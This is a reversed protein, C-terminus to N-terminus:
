QFQTPNIFGIPILQHELLYNQSRRQNREDNNQVKWDKFRICMKNFKYKFMKSKWVIMFSIIKKIEFELKVHNTSPFFSEKAYSIKSYTNKFEMIIKYNKQDM